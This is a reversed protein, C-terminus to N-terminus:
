IFNLTWLAHDGGVDANGFTFKRPSWMAVLAGHRKLLAATCQTLSNWGTLFLTWCPHESEVYCTLASDNPERSKGLLVKLCTHTARDQLWSVGFFSIVEMGISWTNNLCPTRSARQWSGLYHWHCCLVPHCNMLPCPLIPPTTKAGISWCIFLWCLLGINAWFGLVSISWALCTQWLVCRTRFSQLAPFAISSTRRSTTLSILCVKWPSWEGILPQSTPVHQKQLINVIGQPSPTVRSAVM